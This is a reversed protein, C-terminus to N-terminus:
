EPDSGDALKIVPFLTKFDLKRGTKKALIKQNQILKEATKKADYAYKFGLSLDCNLLFDIKTFLKQYEKLILTNNQLDDLLQQKKELYETKFSNEDQLTEILKMVEFVMNASAHSHNHSSNEGRGQSDYIVIKSIDKLQNKWLSTSINALHSGIKNYDYKIVNSWNENNILKDADVNQKFSYINNKNDKNILENISITNRDFQAILDLVLSQLANILLTFKGESKFYDDNPTYIKLIEDNKEKIGYDQDLPKTQDRTGRLQESNIIEGIIDLISNIEQKYNSDNYVTLSKATSKSDPRFMFNKNMENYQNNLESIMQSLSLNEFETMENSNDNKSKVNKNCSFTILPLISCVPLIFKLKNKM